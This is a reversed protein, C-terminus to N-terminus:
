DWTMSWKQRLYAKLQDVENDSLARNWWMVEMINGVWDDFLGDENYGGVRLNATEASIAYTADTFDFGAGGDLSNYVTIDGSNNRQMIGVVQDAVYNATSVAGADLTTTTEDTASTRLGHRPISHWYTIYQAQEIAESAAVACTTYVDGPQPMPFDTDIGGLTQANFLGTPRNTFTLDVEPDTASETSLNHAWIGKDQIVNIEDEDAVAPTTMAEDQWLTTTDAFDYWHVLDTMPPAANTRGGGYSQKEWSGTLIGSPPFAVLGM